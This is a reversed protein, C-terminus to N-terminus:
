QGGNQKEKARKFEVLKHMFAPDAELCLAFIKLGLNREGELFFTHSNGTFSSQFVHAQELIWWVFLRGKEEGLLKKAAALLERRDQEGLKRVKDQREAEEGFLAELAPDYSNDRM